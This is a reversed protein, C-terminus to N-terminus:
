YHRRWDQPDLGPSKGSDPQAHAETRNWDENKPDAAGNVRPEQIRDIQLARRDSPTLYYHGVDSGSFIGLGAREAQSQVIPYFARLSVPLLDLESSEMVALGEKLLSAGVDQGRLTSVQGLLHTTGERGIRLYGLQGLIVKETARKAAQGLPSSLPESRIGMLHVFRSQHRADSMILTDGSLVELVKWTESHESGYSSPSLLLAILFIYYMKYSM